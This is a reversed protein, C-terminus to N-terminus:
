IAPPILSRILDVDNSEYVLFKADYDFLAWRSQLGSLIMGDNESQAILSVTFFDAPPGEEPPSPVTYCKRFLGTPIGEFIDSYLTGSPLKVFEMLEFIKM